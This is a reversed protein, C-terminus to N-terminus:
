GKYQELQHPLQYQFSGNHTGIIEIRSEAMACHFLAFNHNLWEYFIEEAIRQAVIMGSSTGATVNPNDMRFLDLKYRLTKHLERVADKRKREETDIVNIFKYNNYRFRKKNQKHRYIMVGSVFAAIASAMGVYMMADM